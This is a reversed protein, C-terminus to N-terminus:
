HYTDKRTQFYDLKWRLFITKQDKITFISKLFVFCLLIDVEWSGQSHDINVFPIEANKGCSHICHEGGRVLVYLSYVFAISQLLQGTFLVKQM